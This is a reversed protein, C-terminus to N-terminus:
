RLFLQVVVLGGRPDPIVGLGASTFRGCLIVARHNAQFRPEDMFAAMTAEVSPYGRALNEAVATFYVGAKTLRAAADEGEPSYHGFFGRTAQDLCYHRAVQAAEEHWVLPKASSSEVPHAQREWNILELMKRELQQLKNDWVAYGDRVWPLRMPGGGSRASSHEHQTRVIFIDMTTKVLAVLMVVAVLLVLFVVLSM